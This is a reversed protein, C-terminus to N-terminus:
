CRLLTQLLVKEFQKLPAVSGEIRMRILAGEWGNLVIAALEQDTLDTRLAHHERGQRFADAIMNELADMMDKLALRCEESGGAIENGLQGLLCGARCKESQMCRVQNSFYKEVGTIGDEAGELTRWLNAVTENGAARIVEAGFHEKSRFYNYFSGKPVGAEDLVAKLGTGHFGQGRLLRVGCDLLTQRTGESHRPRAM